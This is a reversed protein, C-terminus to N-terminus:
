GNAHYRDAVLAILQRAIAVKPARALRAEGGNWLVHLENDNSDFGVGEVGVINAAIMDLSKRELKSRANAILNDTEAAFGVAFPPNPRATVSHLIDQTPTLTLSLADDRKKRKSTAPEDVRYDAVAAASIFIDAGDIVSAVADFMEAASIVRLVNVFRPPQLATPGSVLTVESGAAAAAAAVAYGMKGSSRNSIYRVPDIAEQTPGATVIIRTHALLPPEFHALAAAAIDDPEVLRGPGTEGCAQAGDAPGVVAIGRERLVALNAVTAANQWMQQNMAPAVLLPATTALCLTSALDDALGGRLRALFDASAPAVVVIDAWRALEIHGMAAEAREDLLDCHVPEGSLAQFSLPTVFRQAAPTMVVRVAAGAESLRRVVELAKYAAIGGTVILLVHKPTPLSM